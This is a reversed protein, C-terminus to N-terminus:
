CPMSPPAAAPGHPAREVEMALTFRSGQGPVSVVELQAGMLDALARVIALGLGTGGHRGAAEPDQAYREFLRKQFAASMGRGTDAVSIVVRVRGSAADSAPPDLAVQVSGLDTFKIANGILNGIMQRLRMADIMVPENWPQAGELTLTLGKARAGATYEEVLEALLPGLAVPRPALTIRHAELKAVDLLNNLLDVLRSAARDTAKVLDRSGAPLPEQQLLDLGAVISSLSSRVEHGLEALFDAKAATAARAADRQAQLSREAQERARVQAALRRNYVLSLALGLLLLTGVPVAVRLIDRWPVGTHLETRLWTGALAALDNEPVAALGQRLLEALEPRDKRVMMYLESPRGEVTGSVQLQGLFRQKIFAAAVELNTIMADAQGSAVHAMATEVTEVERLRVAPAERRIVPILYHARDIALVRNTLSAVTPWGGDLRSVLVSPASYYPGVFQAFEQRWETRVASLMVDLERARVAELGAEFTRQPIFRYSVGTLGAVRRFLEIAFGAPEGDEGLGNIPAFGQDFGVRLEGHRAVLARREGDVLGARQPTLQLYRPQWAHILQDLWTPDIRRLAANLADRLPQASHPVALHLRGLSLSTTHLVELGDIREREIVHHAPALAGLYLDAQGAAVARLAAATDAVLLLPAGGHHAILYEHTIYGREVAVRRGGLDNRESFDTVGRRGIYALPLQVYSDTFLFDVERQPSRAMSPLVDIEGRRAADLLQPYDEFGRVAFPLDLMHFLARVLEGSLGTYRGDTDLEDVPRWDRVVGVRVASVDPRWARFADPVVVRPLEALAPSVRTQPWVSSWAGFMLVVVLLFGWPRGRRIHGRTAVQANM